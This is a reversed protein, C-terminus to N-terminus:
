FYSAYALLDEYVLKSRLRVFKIPEGTIGSTNWEWSPELGYVKIIDDNFQRLSEEDRVEYKLVYDHKTIYHAGDGILHAIIRAKEKTLKQFGYKLKKIRM